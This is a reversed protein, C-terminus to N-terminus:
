KSEVYHQFDMLVNNALEFELACADIAAGIKDKPTDQRSSILASVRSYIEALRTDFEYFHIQEGFIEDQWFGPFARMSLFRSQAYHRLLDPSVGSRSLLIENLDRQWDNMWEKFNKLGRRLGLRSIKELIPNLTSPMM